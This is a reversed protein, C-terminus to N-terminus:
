EQHLRLNVTVLGPTSGNAVSLDKIKLRQAVEMEHLWKLVKDFPTEEFRLRVGTKGSANMSSVQIGHVSVSQQVINELSRARPSRSGGSKQAVVQSALDRVNELSTRLSKNTALEKDRMEQVPKLLVMFLFYVVLFGACILLALQDRAPAQSWWEKFADM